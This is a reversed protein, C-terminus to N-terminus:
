GYRVPNGAAYWVLFYYLGYLVLDVVLMTIFMGMVGVHPALIWFVALTVCFAMIKWIAGLRNNGTAGFTTSLTSVVFKLALAPMLVQLYVGAMEWNDGFVFNFLQPAFLMLLVLLPSVIAVLMLTVRFLYPRVPLNRSVLDAVKRLNVQSVADSVFSVPAMAVRLMLAYYGVSTDSFYSSLFFVPLATMVGNMLGTTANYIPFDRYRCILVKKQDSWFLLRMRFLGRYHCLLMLGVLATALVSSLLLGYHLDFVGLALSIAVGFLAILVRSRSIIRYDQVRNSYYNLTTIVGTLFLAIPVLYIWDGLRGINLLYAVSDGLLWIMCFVSLSVGFAVLIAIGVLQRSQMGTKAVVVAVEYKGCVAPTISSVVAAFLAALGFDSPSYLRTLIPSAIIATAQALVAGAGLVAVSRIFHSNRVRFFM